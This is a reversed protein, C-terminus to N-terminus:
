KEMGFARVLKNDKAVEQANAVGFANILQSMHQEQLQQLTMVSRREVRFFQLLVGQLLLITDLIGSVRM